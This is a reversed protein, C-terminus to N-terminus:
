ENNNQDDGLYLGVGADERSMLCAMSNVTQYSSIFVDQIVKPNLAESALTGGTESILFM